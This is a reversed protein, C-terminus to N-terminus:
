YLLGMPTRCSSFVAFNNVISASLFSSGHVWVIRGAHICMGTLAVAARM